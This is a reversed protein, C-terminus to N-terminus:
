RSSRTAARGSAAAPAASTSRCRRPPSRTPTARPPTRAGVGVAGRLRGRWSTTRASRASTPASARRRDRPATGPRLSTRSRSRRSRTTGARGVVQRVGRGAAEGGGRRQTPVYRATVAIGSSATRTTRRTRGSRTCRRTWSARREAPGVADMGDTVDAVRLGTSSPSSRGTRRPPSSRRRSSARGPALTPAAAAAGARCAPPAAVLPPPAVFGDLASGHRACRVERGADLPLLPGLWGVIAKRLELTDFAGESRYIVEGGPAVLITHPLAARGSRTWRRSSRTPTARTSPSTAADLGAAGEPVRAGEGAQRPRRREGDRGRVRARPLHPQALRPRPVRDRVARVLDGLRQHAPAEQRGRQQALARVGAEDIPELTVPEQAWKEFGEKVWARKDSWKVSCGFVKTTEVPVPKGALVAEIANRADSRRPRRRTRTTTWAASSACSASPTSSSSTRRRWRGTSGRCRRPRATTSTRSADLRPGEGPDEHGDLTDGLDTYGQEDLRLALPDNPSVLVVQVGRGAFDAHLKEIREEYAQATPCHNATFVLM